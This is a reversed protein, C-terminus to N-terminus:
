LAGQALDRVRPETDNKAVRELTSRVDVRRRSWAALVEVAHYRVRPEGAAMAALEVARVLTNSPDRVKAASLVSMRVAESPESQLRDALIADIGPDDMSQVARVAAVRVDERGDQMYQQVQALAPVYGANTVARLSTLVDVEQRAAKLRELLLAGLATAGDRDGADRLRRSYTGLGLLAQENFPDKKLLATLADVSVKDPRPTRSLALIIRGRQFADTTPSKSLNVLALQAAPSSASSLAEILVDSAPSKAQIRRVALAITEPQQRFIAALATFLRSEESVSRQREDQIASDLPAGNVSSSVAPKGAKALEEFRAVAKAFTVDGIRAKDLSEISVPGGYPQDAMTVRMKSMLTSWDPTPGGGAERPGRRLELKVVSHIPAQAGNVLLADALEVSRIEDDDALVITGESREIRPVVNVPAGTHIANAALIAGYSEKNKRWVGAARDFAYRAVYEGTTDSEKAAYEAVPQSTHVFQLASAIERYTNAATASFNEPTRMEAVRGGKFTFFTGSSGLERSIRDFEAQAGAVRSEIHADAIALYLTVSGDNTASPHLQVLGTLDYDIAAPSDGFSVTTTMRLPYAYWQDKGWGRTRPDLEPALDRPMVASPAASAVQSPRSGDRQSRGRLLISVSAVLLVIGAIAIAGVARRSLRNM